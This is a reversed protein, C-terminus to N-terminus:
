DGREIDKVIREKEALEFGLWPVPAWSQTGLDVAAKLTM